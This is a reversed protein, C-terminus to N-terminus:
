TLAVDNGAVIHYQPACQNNPPRAIGYRDEVILFDTNPIPQIDLSHNQLDPDGYSIVKGAPDIIRNSPMMVPLLTRNLTSDDYAAHYDKEDTM